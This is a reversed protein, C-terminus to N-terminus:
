AIRSGHINGIYSEGRSLKGIKEADVDFGIARFGKACIACVLPLGVYGLGVVGIVAERAVFRRCLADIDTGGAPAPDMGDGAPPPAIKQPHATMRSEGNKQRKKVM